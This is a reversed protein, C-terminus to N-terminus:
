NYERHFVTGDMRLTILQIRETKVLSNVVKDNADEENNVFSPLISHNYPTLIIHRIDDYIDNTHRYVIKMNEQPNVIVALSRNRAIGAIFHHHGARYIGCSNYTGLTIGNNFMIAVAKQEFPMAHRLLQLTNM